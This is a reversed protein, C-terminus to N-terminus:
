TQHSLRIWYSFNQSINFLSSYAKLRWRNGNRSYILRLFPAFVNIIFDFKMITAFLFCGFGLRQSVLILKGKNNTTWKSQKKCNCQFYFDFMEFYNTDDNNEDYWQYIHIYKNQCYSLFKSYRQVNFLSLYRVTNMWVFVYSTLLMLCGVHDYNKITTTHAYKKKRQLCRILTKILTLM